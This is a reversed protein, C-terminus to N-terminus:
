EDLIRDLTAHLEDLSSLSHCVGVKGGWTTGPLRIISQSWDIVFILPILKDKSLDKLLWLVKLMQEPELSASIFMLDPTFTSLEQVAKHLSHTIKLKYNSPLNMYPVAMHRNPEIALATRSHSTM